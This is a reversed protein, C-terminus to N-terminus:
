QIPLSFLSFRCAATGYTFNCARHYLFGFEDFFVIGAVAEPQQEPGPCAAHIGGPCCSVGVPDHHPQVASHLSVHEAVPVPFQRHPKHGCEGAFRTFVWDM